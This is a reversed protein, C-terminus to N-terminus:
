CIVIARLKTFLNIVCRTNVIRYDMSEFDTDLELLISNLIKLTFVGWSFGMILDLSFVIKINLDNSKLITKM